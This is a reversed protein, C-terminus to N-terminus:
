FAKIMKRMEKKGECRKNTMEKGEEDPYTAKIRKMQPM